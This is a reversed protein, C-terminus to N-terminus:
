KSKLDSPKINKKWIKFDKIFLAIAVPYQFFYRKFLKPEDYVRYLARLNLKNIWYPYYDIKKATQHFFGGCTFGTGLYGSKRLKNLFFEQKPTGMGVVVIDVKLDLITKLVKKEVDPDNLFGHHFGVINLKEFKSQIRQTAQDILHPESGVFFVKSENQIAQDFVKPALSGMDFSNRELRRMPSILNYIALLLKGDILYTDINSQIDPSKRLMMYSYPNIFSIDKGYIFDDSIKEFMRM